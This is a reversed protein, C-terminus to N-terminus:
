INFAFPIPHFLNNVEFRKITRKETIEVESKDKPFGIEPSM